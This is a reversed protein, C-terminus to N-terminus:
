DFSRRFTEMSRPKTILLSAICKRSGIGSKLITEAYSIKVVSELSPVNGAGASSCPCAKSFMPSWVINQYLGHCPPLTQTAVHIRSRRPYKSVTLRGLGPSNVVSSVCESTQASYRFIWGPKASGCQAEQG